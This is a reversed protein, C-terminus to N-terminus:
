ALVTQSRNGSYRPQLIAHVQVNGTSGTDPDSFEITLWEEDNNVDMDAADVEIILMYNDYTGHTLTLDASTAWAALVDALASGTAAGGFAYHFTLPSTKVGDTVGSFVKVHSSAVGLAQLGVIFTAHHQGKMNISDGDLTAGANLDGDSLVPVIKLEEALKM